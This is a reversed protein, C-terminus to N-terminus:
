KEFIYLINKRLETQIGHFIDMNEIKYICLKIFIINCTMRGCVYSKERLIQM